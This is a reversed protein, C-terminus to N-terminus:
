KNDFFSNNFLINNKNDFIIKIIKTYNDKSPKGINEIILSASYKNLLDFTNMFGMGTGGENLYTTIPKKGLSDFVKKPFEVGSDYFYVAFCEEIKGLRVMISKNLNDSHNIAIIADKIHDALLIALEDKTIHHNIMQYINGKLQLVFDIGSLRCEEQMVDFMDDIESIGTKDLKPLKANELLQKSINKLESEIGIEEATESNILIKNIKFELSKQKHALSHAKKSFRLNEAELEEVEKKKDDLEKKTESLDQILLKQKYYAEISKKISIIMVIIFVLISIGMSRAMFVTSNHMVGISFLVISSINLLLISIFDNNTKQNIFSFGYKIRKIKMVLSLLVIYGITIMLFSISDNEINFIICPICNFATSIFFLLYNISISFVIAPISYIINNKTLASFISSLLIIFTSISVLANIKVKVICSLISVIIISIGFIFMNIYNISNSKKELSKNLVYYTGITMILMKFFYIYISIDEEKVSYM